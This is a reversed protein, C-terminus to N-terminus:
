IAVTFIIKVQVQVDRRASCLMVYCLCTDYFVFLARYCACTDYAVVEVQKRQM